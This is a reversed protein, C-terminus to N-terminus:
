NIIEDTEPNFYKIEWGEPIGNGNRPADDAFTSDVPLLFTGTPSVNQLWNSLINEDYKMLHCKIFNIKYCQCFMYMLGTYVLENNHTRKIKIEPTTILNSCGEFMYAYAEPPLYESPLVKPSNVLNICKFFMALYVSNPLNIAPLILNNANILTINNSFLRQFCYSQSISQQGIFKSSYLLSMINGGINCNDTTYIMNWKHVPRIYVGWKENEGRLYM